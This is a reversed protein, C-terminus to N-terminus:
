YEKNYHEKDFYNFFDKFETVVLLNCQDKFSQYLSEQQNRDRLSLYNIKCSDNISNLKKLFFDYNTFSHRLYAIIANVSLGEYSNDDYQHEYSKWSYYADIDSLLKVHDLIRITIKPKIKKSDSILCKFKQHTIIKKYEFSRKKLGITFFQNTIIIRTERILKHFSSVEIQLFDHLKSINIVLTNKNKLFVLMRIIKINLM